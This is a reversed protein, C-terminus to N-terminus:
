RAEKSPVAMRRTMEKLFAARARHLLLRVNGVNQGLLDAIGATSMQELEFLVLVERYRERLSDLVEYFQQHTERRELRRLPSDDPSPIQREDDRVLRKWWPRVARHRRDNAVVNAAIRFLWTGLQSDGRFSPLQRNVILFVEQTLDEVDVWPGGLRAVWRAVRQAHQRYVVDFELAERESQEPASAIASGVGLTVDPSRTGM